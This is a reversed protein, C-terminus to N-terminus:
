DAPSYRFANTLYNTLVQEIRDADAEVPILAQPPLALEIRRTPAVQQQNAVVQQVITTLNCQQLSMEFKQMEMRSVDLLEAVLRTEIEAQRQAQQLMAELKSLLDGTGRSSAESLREIGLLALELCGQIATLPTRREHSVMGLAYDRSRKPFLLILNM